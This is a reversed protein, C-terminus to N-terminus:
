ATVRRLASRRRLAVVGWVGAAVVGVVMNFEWALPHPEARLLELGATSAFYAIAFLLAVEGDYRRRAQYETLGLFLLAGALAFYLQLPQVPLSHVATTDSMGHAIQWVHADSGRPFPLAWPRDSPRGYCCGQLFCGLRTALILLGLAPAVLDATRWPSGGRVRPLLPGILLLMLIGGPLRVQESWLAPPRGAWASEVLYLLKAGVLLAATCGILLVAIQRATMGARHTASVIAAGALVAAVLWGAMTASLMGISPQM